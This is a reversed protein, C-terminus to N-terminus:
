MKQMEAVKWVEEEYPQIKVTVADGVLFDELTLAEGAADLLKAGPCVWGQITQDTFTINRTTYDVTAITTEFQTCDAKPECNAIKIQVALLTTPDVMIAKVEVVDGETLDSLTFYVRHDVANGKGDPSYKAAAPQTEEMEPQGKWEKTVGFILTNEDVLIIDSKGAVTFQGLAYDITVITDRFAVDYKEGESCIRIRTAYVNGDQNRDGHVEASDGPQIDEFPIPSENNNHFRTVQCNQLAIVTDPIGAFTLMRRIQDVTEVRAKLQQEGVAAAFAVQSDFSQDTSNSSISDVPSKNCGVVVLLLLAASAVMMRIWQSKM